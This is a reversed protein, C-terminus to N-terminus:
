KSLRKVIHATKICRIKLDTKREQSLVNFNQTKPPVKPMSQLTSVPINIYDNRHNYHSVTVQKCMQRAKMKCNHRILSLEKKHSINQEETALHEVTNVLQKGAKVTHQNLLGSLTNELAKQSFFPNKPPLLSDFSRGNSILAIFVKM